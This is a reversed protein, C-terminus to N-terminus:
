LEWPKKSVWLIGNKFAGLSINWIALAFELPFPQPGRPARATWRARPALLPGESEGGEEVTLVLKEATCDARCNCM